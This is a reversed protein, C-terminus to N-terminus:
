ATQGALLEKVRAVIEGVRVPRYVVSAAPLSTLGGRAADAARETRSAVVVAPVYKLLNGLKSSADDILAADLVIASPQIGKALAGGVDDASEMGMAEIGAHLLEARVLARLTWDTSIVFVTPM